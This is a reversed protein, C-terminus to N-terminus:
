GAFGDDPAIPDPDTPVDDDWVVDPSADPNLTAPAGGTQTTALEDMQWVELVPTESPPSFEFRDEDFGTQLGLSELDVYVGDTTVGVVKDLHITQDETSSVVVPEFQAFFMSADLPSVFAPLMHADDVCYMLEMIGDARQFVFNLVCIKTTDSNELAFFEVSEPLPNDNIHQGDFLLNYDSLSVSMPDEPDGLYAIELTNSGIRTVVKLVSPEVSTIQGDFDTSIKSGKLSFVTM